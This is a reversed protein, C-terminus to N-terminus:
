VFFFNTDWAPFCPQHRIYLKYDSRIEFVKLPIDFIDESRHYCAIQMKPKFNKITSKAGAIAKGESGEVDMKIFDIKKGELIADVNIVPIKINGTKASTNRGGGVLFPIEGGSEWIGKNIYDVNKFNKTNETLKKFTKPDPEVAIIKSYNKVRNAFDLVTDGNFAGLDLFSADSKLSLIKFDDNYNSEASILDEPNGGLKFSIIKSFVEKSKRDALLSYVKRIKEANNVAFNLDFINNGYVPVDPIYVEQETAIKLINEIVDKRGTGFAVLVIMSGFTNKAASYDTVRFGRFIKNKSFGNSAFVGSVKINLDELHNLILDAGNGMGYLLIPKNVTKLHDWLCFM